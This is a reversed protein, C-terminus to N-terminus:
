ARRAERLAKAAAEGLKADKAVRKAWLRVIPMLAPRQIKLEDLVGNAQGRELGVMIRAYEEITIPGRFGEVRATYAADYAGRLDSRGRGQEAALAANWRAESARWANERVGHADLVEAREAKGEALEAAITATEELTLAVPPAETEPEPRAPTQPPAAQEPTTPAQPPTAQEPKHTGAGVPAQATDARPLSGLMALPGLMPPPAINAPRPAASRPAGAAEHRKWTAPPNDLDVPIAVPPPQSAMPPPAVSAPPTPHLPSAMPPAATSQFPLVPAPSMAWPRLTSACEDDHRPAEPKPEMAHAAPSPSAGQTFPLAPQVRSDTLGPTATAAPDEAGADAAPAARPAGEMTVAVVGTEGAHGLLVVGRWVLTAIARDTDICLTDVRVRIEHAEGSARRVTVVPNVKSLRTTLQPYSSHLRELVITEDGRLETLQQDEPAANFFAGDFDEPLPRAIWTRHDWTSALRGLLSARPHWTPAIPGLGVSPIPDAPSRLVFGRPVINPIRRLGREDPPGSPAIGAPNNTGWAAREWTLPARSFPEGTVVRGDATWARDAHVEIAKDISGVAVRASLSMVPAGASAFAHGLVLVDTRRKFPAMDSAARLSRRPDDNWHVDSQSPEEQTRALPSEGPRLEFTAKCVVTLAHSGPRPQWRLAAVRIPCYSRVDM